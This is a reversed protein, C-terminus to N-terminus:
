DNESEEEEGETKEVEAGLAKALREALNEFAEMGSWGAEDYNTSAIEKKGVFVTVSRDMESKIRVVQKKM